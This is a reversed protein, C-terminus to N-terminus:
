RTFAIAGHRDRKISLLRTNAANLLVELSDGDSPYQSLGASFSCHFDADSGRFKIAKFEALLREMARGIVSQESTPFALVFTDESWRGRLDEAKFHKHLLNSLTQITEEATFLSNLISTNVFDDITLLCFTISHGLTKAEILRDNASLVFDRRSLSGTLRDREQRGRAMQEHELQARVRALLEDALVPKSLFDDAGAQFAASRGAQDNKSTLFIIPLHVFRETARLMRCVDYGSLGPM